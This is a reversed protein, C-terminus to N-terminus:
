RAHHVNTTDLNTDMWLHQQRRQQHSCRQEGCKCAVITRIILWVQMCTRAGVPFAYGSLFFHLNTDAIKLDWEYCAGCLLVESEQQGERWIVSAQLVRRAPLAEVAVTM